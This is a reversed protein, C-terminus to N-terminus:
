CYDITDPLKLDCIQLGGFIPNPLTILNQYIDDKCFFFFDTGTSTGPMSFKLM